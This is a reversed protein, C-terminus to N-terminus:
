GNSKDLIQFIKSNTSFTQIGLLIKKYSQSKQIMKIFSGSFMMLFVKQLLGVLFQQSVIMLKKVIIKSIKILPVTNPNLYILPLIKLLNLM